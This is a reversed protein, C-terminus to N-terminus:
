LINKGHPRLSIESRRHSATKTSVGSDLLINRLDLSVSDNYYGNDPMSRAVSQFLLTSNIGDPRNFSVSTAHEYDNYTHLRRM